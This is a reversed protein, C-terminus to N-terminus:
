DGDDQGGTPQFDSFIAIISAKAEEIDTESAGLEGLWIAACDAASRLAVLLRPEPLEVPEYGFGEDTQNIVRSLYRRTLRLSAAAQCVSLRGARIAAIVGQRIAFEQPWRGAPIPLRERGYVFSMTEVCDTPIIGHFPSRSADLPVYVERGSFVDALKLANYAGIHAALELLIPPWNDQPRADRPIAFDEIRPIPAQTWKIPKAPEGVVESDSIFM